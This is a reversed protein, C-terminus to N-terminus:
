DKQRALKWRVGYMVGVALWMFAQAPVPALSSGAMGAVLFALVGAAAGEFFGQLEPAIRKERGLRRFQRWCYIWFGLLLVLGILGTDTYAQLFANHPHGVPPLRGDLMADSWMISGLGDGWIPSKMLEPALPAWIEDTRGASVANAGHGIGMTVRTWIAGPALAAAIPLLLGALIMTKLQRRSALYVLGVLVLCLFAGRSFTLVLAIFVVTMAIVLGFKYSASTTRDWIFLLLAFATAYLRGLDNAHMGLDSLFHRSYTGSLQAFSAGSLVVFVVALLAMVFVSVVMPTIFRESRESREVAAAVLLAYAVFTLPKLFMDRVYGVPESFYIMELDRFFKPIEHAHFAGIFAGMALPAIYALLLSRPVFYRWTGDGVARMFLSLLATVLLLNLPNMGTVGFMAHPFVASQSIPMIAILLAVGFRFDRMCFVCAVLSVCVLAAPVGAAGVLAGWFGGLALLAAVAAARRARQSPEYSELWARLRWPLPLRAALAAM